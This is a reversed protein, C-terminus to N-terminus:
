SPAGGPMMVTTRGSLVPEGGEPAVEFELVSIVLGARESRQAVRGRLMLTAAPPVGGLADVEQSAHLSGAPLEIQELLAGLALAAVALPPALGRERYLANADGTASLYATVRDHTLDIRASTLEHGKPLASLLLRSPATV